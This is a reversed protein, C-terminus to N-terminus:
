IIIIMLYQKLHTNCRTIPNAQIYHKLIKQLIMQNYINANENTNLM